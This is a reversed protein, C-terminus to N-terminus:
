MYRSLRMYICIWVYVFVYVYVSVFVCVYIYIYIYIDKDTYPLFAMGFNMDMLLVDPENNVLAAALWDSAKNPLISLKQRRNPVLINDLGSIVEWWGCGLSPFEIVYNNFSVLKASITIAKLIGPM